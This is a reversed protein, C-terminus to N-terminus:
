ENSLVSLRLSVLENVSPNSGFASLVDDGLDAIDFASPIPGPLAAVWAADAAAAGSYTAAVQTVRQTRERIEANLPKNLERLERWGITEAMRLGKRHSPVKCRPLNNGVTSM